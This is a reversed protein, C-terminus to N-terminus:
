ESKKGYKTICNYEVVFKINTLVWNINKSLYFREM